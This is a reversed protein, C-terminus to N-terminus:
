NKTNINVSFYKINSFLIIFPRLIFRLIIIIIYPSFGLIDNQISILESKSKKYDCSLGYSNHLIIPKSKRFIKYFIDKRLFSRLFFYYDGAIKYNVPYINSGVLQKINNNILTSPHPITNKFFLLFKNPKLLINHNSFMRISPFSLIHNNDNLDILQISSLFNEYHIRDDSGIFINWTASSRIFGYNYAFYIGPIDVSLLNIKVNINLNNIYDLISAESQYDVIIWELSRNYLNNQLHNIDNALNLIDKVKPNKIPTIFAIFSEM